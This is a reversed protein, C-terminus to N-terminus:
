SEGAIREYLPLLASFIRRAEDGLAPSGICASETALEYRRGLEWWVGRRRVEDFTPALPGDTALVCTSGRPWDAAAYVRLRLEEGRAAEILAEGLGGHRCLFEFRGFAGAAADWGLRIAVHDAHVGVNLQPGDQYGQAHGSLTLWTAFPQYGRPWDLRPLHVHLPHHALPELRLTLDDGLATLAPHFTDIIARRRQERDEISFVAFGDSPLGGFGPEPDFLM